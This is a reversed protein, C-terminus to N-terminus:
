QLLYAIAKERHPTEALQQKLDNITTFLTDGLDNRLREVLAQEIGKRRTKNQWPLTFILHLEDHFNRAKLAEWEGHDLWIGGTPSRDITFPFDNGVKYRQMLLGSEPCLKVIASEPSPTETKIPAPLHPLREPQKQLWSWYCQAPIYVGGSDSCQFATLSPLLEFRILSRHPALPSKM